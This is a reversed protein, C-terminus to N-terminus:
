NSNNGKKRLLLLGITDPVTIEAHWLDPPAAFKAKRLFVWQPAHHIVVTPCLPVYHPQLSSVTHKGNSIGYNPQKATAQPEPSKALTLIQHLQYRLKYKNSLLRNRKNQNLSSYHILWRWVYDVINYQLKYKRVYIWKKSVIQPLLPYIKLLIAMECSRKWPPSKSTVEFQSEWAIYIISIFYLILFQNFGDLCICEGEATM